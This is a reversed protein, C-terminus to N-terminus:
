PEAAWNSRVHRVKLIRVGDATSRYFILYPTHRVRWKRASSDPVPSGINPFELLKLLGAEVRETLLLPLEPSAQEYWDNAEYLDRRARSSWVIRRM